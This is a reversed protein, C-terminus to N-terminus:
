AANQWRASPSVASLQVRGTTSSIQLECAANEQANASAAIPAAADPKADTEVGVLPASSAMLAASASSASSASDPSYFGHVPANLDRIKGSGGTVSASLQQQPPEIVIPVGDGGGSSRLQLQQQSNQAPNPTADSDVQAVRWRGSAALPSAAAAAVNVVRLAASTVAAAAAPAVNAGAAATASPPLSQTTSVGETPKPKAGPAAVTELAPSISIRPLVVAAAAAAAAAPPPVAGVSVRVAADVPAAATITVNSSATVENRGRLSDFSVFVAGRKAKISASGTVGGVHVDGEAASVSVSGHFSDIRVANLPTSVPAAAKTELSSPSPSPASSTTLTSVPPAPVAGSVVAAAPTPKSKKGMHTTKINLEQVYAASIQVAAAASSGNSNRDSGGGGSSTVADIDVDKGLLKQVTVSCGSIRAKEAELLTAVRVPADPAAELAAVSGRVKDVSISGHPTSIVVDGEVTGMLSVNCAYGAGAAVTVDMNQPALIRLLYSPLTPPPPLIPAPSVGAAAAVPTHLHAVTDTLLSGDVAFDVTGDDDSFTMSVYRRLASSEVLAATGKEPVSSPPTAPASAAAPPVHFLAVECIDRWGAEVVVDIRPHTISYLSLASPDARNTAMLLADDSAVDRLNEPLTVTLSFGACPESIIAPRGPPTASGTSVLRRPITRLSATRAASVHRLCRLALVAGRALTSPMKGIRGDGCAYLPQLSTLTNGIPKGAGAM